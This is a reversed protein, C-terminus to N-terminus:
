VEENMFNIVQENMNKNTISEIEKQIQNQQYKINEKDKEFEVKILILYKMKNSKMKYDRLDENKAVISEIEDMTKKVLFNGIEM